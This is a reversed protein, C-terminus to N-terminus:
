VRFVTGATWQTTANQLCVVNAEMWPPEPVLFSESPQVILFCGRRLKGVGNRWNRSGKRGILLSETSKIGKEVKRM